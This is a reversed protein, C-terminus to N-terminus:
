EPRDEWDPGDAEPFPEPGDPAVEGTEPDHPPEVDQKEGCQQNAVASQYLRKAADRQDETMNDPASNAAAMLEDVTSADMIRSVFADYESPPASRQSRPKAPKGQPKKKKVRVADVIEGFARVEKAFLTIPKGIWQTADFGYMGAIAKANTKNLVLGKDKGLFMVLPKEEKGEKTKLEHRPIIDEITATVERGRLDGAKLYKSPFLLDIHGFSPLDKHM